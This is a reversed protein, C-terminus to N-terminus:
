GYQDGKRIWAMGDHFEGVEDHEVTIVPMAGVIIAPLVATLIIFIFIVGSIKERM